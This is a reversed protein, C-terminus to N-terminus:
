FTARDLVVSVVATEAVVDASRVSETLLAMIGVAEGPGARVVRRVEGATDVVPIRVWGQYLVHLTDATDGRHMLYAESPYPVLRAHAVIRRLDATDIAEFGRVHALWEAIGDMDM